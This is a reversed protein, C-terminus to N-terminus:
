NNLALADETSLHAKFAIWGKKPESFQQVTDNVATKAEDETAIGSNVMEAETEAKMKQLDAMRKGEQIAKNIDLTDKYVETAEFSFEPLSSLTALDASIRDMKLVIENKIAAIKVTANLWKEDIIKYIDLWEFTNLENWCQLIEKMKDARKQEEFVKVQGDIMQIPENVIAIIEKLKREFEEYPALCQKKIEKRKTELAQVFKNLQVRDTKATKAQDESYVLNTYHKVKEAVEKKIEEHNWEIAQIFGDETPSYIKLEM